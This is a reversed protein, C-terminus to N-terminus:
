LIKVNDPNCLYGYLAFLKELKQGTKWGSHELRYYPVCCIYSAIYYGVVSVDKSRANEM